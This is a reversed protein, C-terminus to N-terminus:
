ALFRVIYPGPLELGQSKGQKNPQGGRCTRQNGCHFRLPVHRRISNEFASKTTDERQRDQPEQRESARSFDEEDNSIVWLPAFGRARSRSSPTAMMRGSVSCARSNFSLSPEIAILVPCACCLLLRARSPGALAGAASAAPVPPAARKSFAPAADGGRSRGA